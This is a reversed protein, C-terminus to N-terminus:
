HCRKSTRRVDQDHRSQKCSSPARSRSIVQDWTHSLQYSESEHVETDEQDLTGRKDMQDTATGRQRNGPWTSWRATFLWSTILIDSLCRFMTMLYCMKLQTFYSTEVNNVTRSCALATDFISKCDTETQCISKETQQKLKNNFDKACSLNSAEPGNSSLSVVRLQKHTSESVYSCSTIWLFVPHYAGNFTASNLLADVFFVFGVVEYCPTMLGCSFM